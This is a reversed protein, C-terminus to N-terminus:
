KFEPVDACKGDHYILFERKNKNYEVKIVNGDEKAGYLDCTKQDYVAIRRDGTSTKGVMCKKNASEAHGEEYIIGIQEKIGSPQKGSTACGGLQALFIAIVFLKIVM